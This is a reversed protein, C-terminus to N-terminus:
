IQGLFKATAAARSQVHLKEYIHQLHMSVTSMSIGLKDSIEKYLFGKVLLGLIEKERATLKEVDSAPKRIAHFHEVVQRAVQATMPAGGAHVDAIAQVLDDYGAKKLLYGSAGARLSDFILHSDSYTTLMLVRLDPLKLKLKAVCEIGSMKPLHIDVLAVDPKDAPIGRLADEGNSYNGICRVAPAGSLLKLLAGRTPSDDEVISVTVPM